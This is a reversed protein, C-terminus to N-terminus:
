GISATRAAIRGPVLATGPAAMAGPGPRFELDAAAMEQGCGSCTVEPECDHGDHAFRLPPGGPPTQWRDGWATLAALVPMLDRGPETLRYYHRPPHDSYPVPELLGDRVLGALRRTLLNRSIGLDAALDDFRDVGLAVDRLILPAWWDGM